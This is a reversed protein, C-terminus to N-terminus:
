RVAMSLACGGRILSPCSCGTAASPKRILITKLSVSQQVLRLPEADESFSHQLSPRALRSWWCEESFGVVWTHSNEEALAM